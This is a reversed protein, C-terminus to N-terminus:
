TFNTVKFNIYTGKVGQTTIEAVGYKELKALLSTYVPRSINYAKTMKSISISGARFGIEKEISKLAVEETHTLYETLPFAQESASCRKRMIEVVADELARLATGAECTDVASYKDKYKQVKILLNESLNTYDEESLNNGYKINWLFDHVKDTPCLSSEYNHTLEFHELLYMLRYGNYLKKKDRSDEKITHEIQGLISLYMKKIDLTTFLEKNNFFHQTFLDEYDPNLIYYKTFLIEIFNVNQKLLMDKYERIDKVVIHEGNDLHYEKTVRSKVLCMEEFTPLYIAISDVDSNENAFGYNQSGYLFVGLINDKSYHYTLLYDYHSELEKMVDM